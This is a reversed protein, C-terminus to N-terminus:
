RGRADTPQATRPFPIAGCVDGSLGAGRRHASYIGAADATPHETPRDAGDGGLTQGNGQGRGARGTPASHASHRGEAQQDGGHTDDRPSGRGGTENGTVMGLNGYDAARGAKRRHYNVRYAGACTHFGNPKTGSKYWKQM